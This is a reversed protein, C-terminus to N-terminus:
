PTCVKCPVFGAAIAEDRTNFYVANNETIKKGWTCSRVHFKYSNTTGIYAAEEGALPADTQQGGAAEPASEPIPAPAPEPESAEPEAAWVGKGAERADTQAETFLDVYKVNPPYTAIMAHGEDILTKNFMEGGIYVYALLRGYRDREEVDFELRIEKDQLAEKTFASSIEGYPVNKEADPHVSEPTDIGILRVKEVTEGIRVELTDGDVVRTVTASTLTASDESGASGEDYASGSDDSASGEGYIASDNYASGGYSGADRLDAAAADETAAGCASSSLVACLLLISLLFRKM